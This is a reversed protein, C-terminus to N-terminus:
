WNPYKLKMRLDKIDEEVYRLRTKWNDLEAQWQFLKNDKVYKSFMPTSPFNEEERIKQEFHIINNKCICRHSKKENIRDVLTILDM